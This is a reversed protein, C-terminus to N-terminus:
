KKMKRYKEPNEIRIRELREPRHLRAQRKEEKAIKKKEDDRPMKYKREILSIRGPDIGTKTALDYITMQAFFRRKKMATIM